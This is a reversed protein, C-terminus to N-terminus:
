PPLHQSKIHQSFTCSTDNTAREDVAETCDNAVFEERIMMDVEVFSAPVCCRQDLVIFLVNIRKRESSGKDTGFAGSIRARSDLPLIFSISNM